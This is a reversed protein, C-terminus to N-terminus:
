LVTWIGFGGCRGWGGITKQSNRPLIRSGTAIIINKAELVELGRDTKVKVEGPREVIGEGFYIDVKQNKLLFEVGKVLKDVVGEKWKNLSSIDLSLNGRIGFREGNKATHYIHAVHLLAKTPICGVNLCVGGLKWKEVLATKLGLQAARIGAVYGGPGGGIIVVDYRM